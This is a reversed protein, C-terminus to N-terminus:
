RSPRVRSQLFALLDAMEGSKLNHGFAPMNIGGNLIRWTLQNATLRSGVDTLDPGRQGGYGSIRHCYACGKDHFLQAGHVVHPDSSAVVAAPLPPASFDPSWRAYVAKTWFVAIMLVAFLVFGIAWPRRSPSREGRNSIFPVLILLLGFVLPGYIIVYSEAGAPLLALLGFYWLLYWDPRPYAEIITPDPPRGLEPAGVVIALVALSLVVITGFVVDRWAADPWFPVGDSHLHDQYWKRYTAPDVLRGARPWESIGNHLVLYLHWGLFTFIIAPIFFVHFGYFRSLTAGGVVDGAFIFKVILPGVFPARGAQEAAIVASWVGNQDWRLLQGTFGMLLTFLLLVAGTLWNMERPFKFSGTLYVRITHLGVLLVMGSAGFYHLGRIFHGLATDSIFNLSDYAQGTGAVYGTALAIGTAVQILFCILTASGLVYPWRSSRPVPHKLIPELVRWLGNRDEFWGAIRKLRGSM